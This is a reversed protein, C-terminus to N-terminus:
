KGEGKTLDSFPMAAAEGRLVADAAQAAATFSNNKWYASLACILAFLLSLASALEDPLVLFTKVGFLQLGANCLSLLLLILRIWTGLSVNAVNNVIDKFKSM